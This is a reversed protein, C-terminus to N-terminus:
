RSPKKFYQEIGVGVALGIVTGLPVGYIAMKGIGTALIVTLGGTFAGALMTWGVAGIVRGGLALGIIAGAAALVIGGAVGEENVAMVGILFGVAAGCLSWIIAYGIRRM